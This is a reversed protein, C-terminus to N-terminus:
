VSTSALICLWADEPPALAHHERCGTTSVIGHRWLHTCVSCVSTSARTCLWDDEPLPWLMTRMADMPPTLGVDEWIPAALAFRHQRVHAFGITKQRPWLM